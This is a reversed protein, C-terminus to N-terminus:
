MGSSSFQETFVGVSGALSLFWSLQTKEEAFHFHFPLRQESLAWSYELCATASDTWDLYNFDFLITFARDFPISEHCNFAIAKYNYLLLILNLRCGSNSSALMLSFSCHLQDNGSMVSVCYLYWPVWPPYTGYTIKKKKHPTIMLHYQSNKQKPVECNIKTHISAHLNIGCHRDSIAHWSFDPKM